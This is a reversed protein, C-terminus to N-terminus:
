FTVDFKVNGFNTNTTPNCGMCSQHRFVIKQGQVLTYNLVVQSGTPIRTEIFITVRVNNSISFFDWRPTGSLNGSWTKFTFTYVGAYPAIFDGNADFLNNALLDPNSSSNMIASAIPINAIAGNTSNSLTSSTSLSASFTKPFKKRIIQGGFMQSKIDSLPFLIVFFTFFTCVLPLKFKLSKMFILKFLQLM